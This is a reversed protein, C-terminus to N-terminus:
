VKQIIFIKAILVYMLQKKFDLFIDSIISCQEKFYDFFYSFILDKDYQNFIKSNTSSEQNIKNISKKLENHLQELIFIIFDKFDEAQGQKFLLDINETM